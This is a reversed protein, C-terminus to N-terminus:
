IIEMNAGLAILDKIFTPYSDEVIEINKIESETSSFLAAVTCAMAIRHDQEHVLQSSKLKTCHHIVLKDHYEEVKVGMKQLERAMVAIRDSEKVRLGEANYLVTTGKAYAGVVSLIPFLDPVERCDVEIGKLRNKDINGYCILKNNQYDIQLKAGMKQLIEIIRKDGQPDRFNLNNIIVKSDGPSLVTAAIIFAASSFDSPIIYDQPKIKQGLTFRYERLEKKNDNEDINIGFTDLINLTIKLYPYSVLPSLIKISLYNKTKCKLLPGLILLATIFQSSIDGRIEVDKCEQSIRYIRLKEGSLEYEAGLSSLADLLPLLPRKRRFFEGYFTLGGKILLSLASFIRISTGSNKGDILPHSKFHFQGKGYVKYKDSSIRQIKVGLKKVIEMTVLVDGSLLPNRLISVGEGLAALVFARHSYSKSGPPTIEGRLSSTKKIRLDM